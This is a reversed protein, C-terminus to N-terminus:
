REFNWMRRLREALKARGAISDLYERSLRDEASVWARTGSSDIDELWRYPDAVERGQYVDVRADRPAPPYSLPPSASVSGAHVGLLLLAGISVVLGLAVPLNQTSQGRAPM